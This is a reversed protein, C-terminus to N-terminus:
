PNKQIDLSSHIIGLGDMVYKRQLDERKKPTYIPLTFSFVSGKNHGSSDANVEGTHMSIISKSIYLGLGTSQFQKSQAQANASLTSFKQFLKEIDEPGFGIGTDAVSVKVYEHVCTASVTITGGRPTFKISNGIFNILVEKIKDVDAIVDPLREEQATITLTLGQEDIKPQVEAIVEQILPQIDIRSFQVALRGSEIRSINLMDNVLRILRDASLFARDLYYKQKENVDGGKGSLAMWLYSRISTLPTRLEHSALSVFEDKLKDLQTLKENAQRLDDTAHAVEAELTRNFRRIEEYAFSNQVAVAAESALIDLLSIDQRSYIDGSLKAGLFLLGIQTGGTRLHVIVTADLSRMISKMNEDDMEDSNLLDRTAIIQKVDSEILTPFSDYGESLVDVVLDKQTLIIAGRSIRLQRLLVELLGHSLDELRITSAMVHSLTSLVENTNYKGQFFIKDTVFEILQRVGQFSFLMVVTIGILATLEQNSFHIEFFVRSLVYIAFPFILATLGILIAYVVARAVFYSIDLFQHRVVSYSICGVFVLTYLPLLAVFTTNNFLVVFVLNTILLSLFMFVTGFLFFRMQSREIGKSTRFRQILLLFGGGLFVVTHLLFAPMGLGPVSQIVGQQLTVTSFILYTLTIPFLLISVVISAWFVLSNMHMKPRPFTDVLFFFLVNVLIANTMVMRVWFGAAESTTQSTAVHNLGIYLALVFTFCFFLKGTASKPNKLLTVLGLLINGITAVIVGIVELSLM